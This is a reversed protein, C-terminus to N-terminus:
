PDCVTPVVLTALVNVSVLLKVTLKPLMTIPVVPSKATEAVVHAELRAALAAHVMLMVKVGVVVPVLVPCSLM